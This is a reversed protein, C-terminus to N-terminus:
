LPRPKAAVSDLKLQIYTPAGTFQAGADRLRRLADAAIADVSLLDTLDLRLKASQGCAALLGPVHDSMLRGAITVVRIGGEESIQIRCDVLGSHPLLNALEAGSFHSSIPRILPTTRPIPRCDTQFQGGATLPERFSTIVTGNGLPLRSVIVAM